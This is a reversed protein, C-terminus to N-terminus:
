EFLDQNEAILRRREQPDKIAVIEAKTIKKGTGGPTSASSLTQTNTADKQFLYPYSEALKATDLGSIHGDKAVEIEDMDLHAIVAVTDSCGAALLANTVTLMKERAAWDSAAKDSAAKAKEQAEKVAANVDDQSLAKELDANLSAERDKSTKLQEELDKIRAELSERKQKQVEDPQGKPGGQPAGNDPAPNTDPQGPDGAGHQTGNDQDAM